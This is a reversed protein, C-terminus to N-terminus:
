YNLIRSEVYKIEIEDLLQLSLGQAKKFLIDILIHISICNTISLINKKKINTQM